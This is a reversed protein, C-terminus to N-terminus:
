FVRERCSARGIQNGQFGGNFAVVLSGDFGLNLLQRFDGRRNCLFHVGFLALRSITSCLLCLRFGLVVVNDVGLEFFDFVLLLNTARNVAIM